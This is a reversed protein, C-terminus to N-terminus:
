AITLNNPPAFAGAISCVVEIVAIPLLKTLQSRPTFQYSSMDNVDILTCPREGEGGVSPVCAIGVVALVILYTEIALSLTAQSWIFRIM